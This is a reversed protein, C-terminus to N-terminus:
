RRISARFAPIPVTTIRHMPFALLFQRINQPALLWSSMGGPCRCTQLSNRRQRVANRRQPSSQEATFFGPGGLGFAPNAKWGYAGLGM